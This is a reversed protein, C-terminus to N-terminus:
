TTVIPRSTKGWRTMFVLSSSATLNDRFYNTVARRAFDIVTSYSMRDAFLLIQVTPLPSSPPSARSCRITFPLFNRCALAVPNTATTYHCKRRAKNNREREKERRGNRKTLARAQATLLPTAVATGRNVASPGQFAHFPRCLPLTPKRFSLFLVCM